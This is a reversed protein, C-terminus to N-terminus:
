RLPIQYGLTLIWALNKANSAFPANPSSASYAKTFSVDYRGQFVFGAYEAGIGFIGSIDVSAADTGLSSCEANGGTPVGVGCHVNFAIAPGVFPAITLSKDSNGFWYRGKLLVPVQIYDLDYSVQLSGTTANAGKQVYLVQSEIAVHSSANVTIFGGIVVGARNGVNVGPAEQAGGLTAFSVGAMPGVLIRPSQAQSPAALALLAAAVRLSRPVYRPAITLM